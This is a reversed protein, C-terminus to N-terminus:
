NKFRRRKILVKSIISLFGALAFYPLLVEFNNVPESFGGVVSSTPSIIGRRQNCTIEIPDPFVALLDEGDTLWITQGSPSEVLITSTGEGLCHFTLRAWVADESWSDTLVVRYEVMFLGGLHFSDVPRGEVEGVEVFEVLEMMSPDWRIVMDFRSLDYGEPIGRIWIDITFQSCVEPNLVSIPTGTVSEVTMSPEPIYYVTIRIHDIELNIYFDFSTSIEVRARVIVGFNASNVEAPTWSEAWLYGDGGYSSYSDTDSIPWPDPKAENSGIPNLGDKVLYVEHDVLFGGNVRYIRADISHHNVRSIKSDISDYNALSIGNDLVAGNAPVVPIHREIEVEIGTVISDDPISFGFNKAILRHTIVVEGPVNILKSATAYADDSVKANDPNSWPLDGADVLVSEVTGPDRPGEQLGHVGPVSTAFTFTLFLCLVAGVLKKLEFV